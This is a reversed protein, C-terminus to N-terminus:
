TGKFGKQFWIPIIDFQSANFLVQELIKSATNKKEIEAVIERALRLCSM